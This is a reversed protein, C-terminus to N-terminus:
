FCIDSTALPGPRRRHFLIFGYHSNLQLTKNIGNEIFEWFNLCTVHCQVCRMNLYDIICVSVSVVILRCVLNSIHLYAWELSMIVWFKSNRWTVVVVGLKPTTHWGLGLMEYPRGSYLIQLIYSKLWKLKWIYKVHRSNTLPCAPSESWLLDQTLPDSPDSNPHTVHTM